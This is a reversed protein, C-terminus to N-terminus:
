NFKFVYSITPIIPFLAISRATVKGDISTLGAQTYAISNLRSYVNYISLLWTRKGWKKEKHFGISADLRHYPKMRVNNRGGDYIANPNYGQFTSFERFQGQRLDPRSTVGFYATPFSIANGTAYIWNIGLTMRESAKHTVVLNLDHRRDYRYPYPNGDNLSEFQRNNWALTYGLWGRTKGTKKQLLLEVGYAFGDGGSVVQDEWDTPTQTGLLINNGRQYEILGWSRKYYGEISFEFKKKWMSTAMGFVAQLANQPPVKATAPVWLDISLGPGSNSLLHLYQTTQIFSGKISVKKNLQYRMSLRAQPNIYTRSDSINSSLHMGINASFREGLRMEDEIYIGAEWNNAVQEILSTDLPAELDSEISFGAFGPVFRHRTLAFGFRLSHAPNPYFEWDMKIGLDRVGSKYRFEGKDKFNTGDQTISRSYKNVSNFRFSSFNASLNSFLKPNWVRNWRLALLKNGWRQSFRTTQEVVPDDPGAILSDRSGGSFADDGAYSSIYLRDKDSFTHTIKGNLDFFQFGFGGGPNELASIPRLLFDIWTRRGSFVFTTKKGLPGNLSLKGSVLGLSGEIDLKEKNGDKMRIDVISSIRGGYRAPFGGKTLKVSSLIDPNFVSFIGGLHSASYLPVDDLLILNQDPGGGRVYLGTGGEQGAQVGPLLQIAKLADVEGGIAPMESIQDVPVRTVSMETRDQINRTEDAIIEVAEVVYASLSFQITTDKKLTFAAKGQKFNRESAIINVPGEKLSLSFFGYNNTLVGKGSIQDYVQASILVEGNAKDRLYGEITHRKREAFRATPVIVPTTGKKTMARLVIQQGILTGKVQVQKAIENLVQEVLLQKAPLHLKTKPAFLSSAYVFTFESQKEVTKVLKKMTIDQKSFRILVPQTETGQAKADPSFGICLLLLFLLFFLNRFRAKM